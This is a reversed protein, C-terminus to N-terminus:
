DLLLQLKKSCLSHLIGDLSCLTTEGRRIVITKICPKWKQSVWLM